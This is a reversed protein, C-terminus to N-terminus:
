AAPALSAAGCSISGVIKNDTVAFPGSLTVNGTNTLTYTYTIQQGAVSYTSPAAGKALSLAKTQTATVTDIANSANAETSSASATDSFTGADLDAQTIAHTGTCVVTAGPALAAAPIGPACNFSTLSPNDSVTVSHL